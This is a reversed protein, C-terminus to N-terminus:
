DLICVDMFGGAFWDVVGVWDIFLFSSQSRIWPRCPGGVIHISAGHSPIGSLQDSSDDGGGESPAYSAEVAM